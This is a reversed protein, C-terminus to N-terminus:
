FGVAVFMLYIAFISLGIAFAILFYSVPLDGFGQRRRERAEKIMAQAKEKQADLGKIKAMAARQRQTGEAFLAGILVGLILGLGLYCGPSEM